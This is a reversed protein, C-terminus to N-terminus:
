GYRHLLILYCRPIQFCSFFVFPAWGFCFIKESRALFCPFFMAFWFGWSSPLVLCLSHRGLFRPCLSPSPDSFKERGAWYDLLSLFDILPGAISRSKLFSIYVYVYAICISAYVFRYLFCVYVIYILPVREVRPQVSYLVSVYGSRESSHCQQM